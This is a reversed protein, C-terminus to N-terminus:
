ACLGQVVRGRWAGIGVLQYSQRQQHGKWAAQISTAAAHLLAVRSRLAGGRFVKQIVLAARHQRLLAAAQQSRWACQIRVAAACAAALRQEQQHRRCLTLCPLPHAVPARTCCTRWGCAHWSGRHQHPSRLAAVGGGTLSSPSPARGTSSTSPGPATRAGAARSACPRRRSRGSSSGRWAAGSAASSWCRQRGGSCSSGRWSAAGPARRNAPLCTLRSCCRQLTLLLVARSALLLLTGTSGVQLVGAAHVTLLHQRRCRQARAATQLVVAAARTSSFESRQQHMRWGAQIATAAVQQEAIACRVQAPLSHKSTLSCAGCPPPAFSFALQTTAALGVMGSMCAARGRVLLNASANSQGRVLHGRFVKQIALAALNRRLQQELEARAARARWAAQLVVAAAQQQQFHRQARWRRVHSQVAVAAQRAALFQARHKHCRWAAQIAAAKLHLAALMQQVCFARWAAQVRIAAARQQLYRRRAQVMRVVAQIRLAAARQQAFRCPPLHL